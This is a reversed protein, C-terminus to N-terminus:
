EKYYANGKRNLEMKEKARDLTASTNTGNIQIWMIPFFWYKVQVEYGLYRDSVIRYRNKM